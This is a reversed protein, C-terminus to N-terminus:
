VAPAELAAPPRLMAEVWEILTANDFPKALVAVSRDASPPESEGFGSIIMVPVTAWWASTRIRRLFESGSMGPLDMDLLVLEPELEPLHELADLASAFGQPQYGSEELVVTLLQRVCDRDEIVLIRARGTAMIARQRALGTGSGTVL